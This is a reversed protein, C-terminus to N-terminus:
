AGYLCLPDVTCADARKAVRDENIQKADEYIDGANERVRDVCCMIDDKGRLAAATAHTYVKKADRSGLIKIGASRFLVGGAFLALKKWQWM